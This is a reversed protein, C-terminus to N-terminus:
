GGAKRIPWDLKRGSKEVLAFKTSAPDIGRIVAIVYPYTLSQAVFADKPPRKLDLEITVMNGDKLPKGVTISYGGTPKEGWLAAIYTGEGNDPVETGMEKSLAAASGAVIVGPRKQGQGPAGAAVREVRLLSRLGSAATTEATTEPKAATPGTTEAGSSDPNTVPTTDPRSDEQSSGSDKGAACGAALLFVLLILGIKLM